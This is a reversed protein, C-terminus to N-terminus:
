DTALLRQRQEEVDFDPAPWSVAMAELQEVLINMIAWNRYWKHDAPVLYWPASEGNCRELADSYAEMM